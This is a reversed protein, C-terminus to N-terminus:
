KKGVPAPASQAPSSQAPTGQSPPAVPMKNTVAPESPAAKNGTMTRELVSKGTGTSPNVFNLSIATLMFLVAFVTTAKVLFPAAGRGGFVGGTVGSGGFTGALGGGKGSQLLVAVILAISVVVHLLILFYHLMHEKRPLDQFLNLIVRTM